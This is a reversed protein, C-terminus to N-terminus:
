KVARTMEHKRHPGPLQDLEYGINKLMRKFVGKACYTTLVGGAKLSDKLQKHFPASWLEPQCNPAFADFFIVNYQNNPYPHELVDAQHKTFSFYETLQITSNWETTHIDQLIDVESSSLSPISDAFNLQQYVTAEIPFKELTDLHINVQHTNAWLAALWVNLGTGMGIELVNITSKNQRLRMYDLGAMIFVHISEDVAGFISHYTADFQESKITHSGDQTTLLTRQEM